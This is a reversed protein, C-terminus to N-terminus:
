GKLDRWSTKPCTKNVVGKKRSRICIDSVVIRHQTALSDEPIVKCDRCAFRIYKRVQSFDIQSRNARRKKFYTNEILLGFTLDFDLITDTIENM